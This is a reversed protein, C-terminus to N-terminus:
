LKERGEQLAETEIDRSWPIKYFEDWPQIQEFARCVALVDSDCFKKGIVQMGVPLGSKSLGAPVSAAPNGTFNEFYTLCFGINREMKIGNVYEPGLTNRNKENKVPLCATTPTIIIDYEAFIDEQADLIESRIGDYYGYNVFGEKSVKEVHECLEPPIHARYKGLLDIGEKKLADFEIVTDICIMDSWIQALEYQDHKIHFHVPEVVAGAERFRNAACEVIGAVERDVPFIDFDKSFGIKWGKISKKMEETYDVPVKPISSPDRPDYGSMYNLIRASDEVTRTICGDMCYPHTATWANPRVVNPLTGVSAKFGFCNCWAAPIRISGGGDTGEAVPIMADAVAAASGGSSGGANYAVHFPNATPGYLLNDTTGRFAFAPANTKGIVIAGAKEMSRCYNSYVSDPRVMCAVGGKSGPWGPKGPLFDKLLTPVGAFDGPSEGAAMAKELKKAEELAYEVNTYVVANLSPNRTEIREAFYQIVETPSVRKAKVERGIESASCYALEKMVAEKTGMISECKKNLMEPACRETQSRKNKNIAIWMGFDTM